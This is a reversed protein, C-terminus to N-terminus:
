GWEFKNFSLMVVLNPQAKKKCYRKVDGSNRYIYDEFDM